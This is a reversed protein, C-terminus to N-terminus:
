DNPFQYELKSKRIIVFFEPPNAAIRKNKRKKKKKKKKWSVSFLRTSQELSTKKVAMAVTGRSAQVFPETWFTLRRGRRPDTLWDEEM